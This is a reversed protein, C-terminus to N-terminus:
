RTSQDETQHLQPTIANFFPLAAAGIAASEQGTQGRQVRPLARNRRNAVSTPIALRGILDDLIARPMKGGLIVTQPDLINELLGIILSLHPAAQDLWAMLAPDGAAHLDHLAGM